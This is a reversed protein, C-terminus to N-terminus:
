NASWHRWAIRATLARLSTPVAGARWRTRTQPCALLSAIASAIAESDEPAVLVATEGDRVIELVGVARYAVLPIAHALAEMLTLGLPEESACSLVPDRDAIMEGVRDTLGTLHLRDHVGLVRARSQLARATAEDPTPGVFQPRM